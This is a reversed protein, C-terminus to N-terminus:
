FLKRLLKILVSTLMSQGEWGGDCNLHGVNQQDEVAKTVLFNLPGREESHMISPASHRYLLMAVPLM